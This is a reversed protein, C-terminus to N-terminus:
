RVQVLLQVGHGEESFSIHHRPPLWDGPVDASVYAHVNVIWTPVGHTCQHAGLMWVSVDTSM